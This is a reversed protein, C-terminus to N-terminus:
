GLESFVEILIKLRREYKDRIKETLGPNALALAAAKQIAAFQGSDSHDKVSTFAKVLLENGAVFGIRWGTMNFSKSLSHLEVGVEMAGDVSLFSLPKDGYVLAAYAADQIVAVRHELAFGVVRKYFDVTANKGTPNNPYNIVLVKARRATEPDLAELDPFFDNGASLPLSVVEAGYWMSHTGFVPYGPVTMLVVEGPNVLASPLLALASKSGISHNVQAHPDLGPVGFVEELYHAAAVRFEEIGNDTYGRNEPKQAEDILAKVIPEPAMEDPEGVGLDILEVTPHESMAARKARKIKEFKYVTTDKGFRDGGIRNAFLQQMFAESM